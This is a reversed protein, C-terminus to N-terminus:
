SGPVLDDLKEQHEKDSRDSADGDFHSDDGDESEDEAVQNGNQQPPAVAEPGVELGRRKAKKIIEAIQDDTLRPGAELRAFIDAQAQEPLNKATIAYLTTLALNSVRDIIPQLVALRVLREVTRSSWPLELRMWQLFEGHRLIDKIERLEVGVEIMMGVSTGSRARIITAANRVKERDRDPISDYDFRDDETAAASTM